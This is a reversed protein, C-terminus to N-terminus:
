KLAEIAAQLQNDEADTIEYINKSNLAQDLAVTVDPVIGIGDYSEGCPPFYMNTTLKLVGKIGFYSLPLTSQMSGKGFTKVGVIKALEYDRFTATFLEAASATYENCLVVASLDKYKGIDERSVNCGAEEGKFSSVPEAKIVEGKGKKDVTSIITQGEDLFYSLVAVISDLSGGGNYRVDFVFKTVGSEKLEDVAKSFQTPTTLDFQLIKIIGVTPDTTCVHYYVSESKLRERIISFKVESYNGNGDARFVTFEANTGAEGLLKSMAAEYGIQNISERTQEDAGVYFLLDGVRVGAKMAPSERTVNIVKLVKYEVDGIKETAYIINIGVGVSNGRMSDMYAIYEEETFYEAYKDGSAAVYAKLLFEGMEEEDVGYYSYTNFVADLIELNDLEAGSPELGAGAIESLKTRYAGLCVSWTLMVAVLVLAVTSLIFSSLSIKKPERPKKNNNNEEGEGDAYLQELSSYTSADKGKDAAEAEHLENENNFNYNKNEESM